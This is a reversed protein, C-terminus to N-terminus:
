LEQIFFKKNLKRSKKANKGKKANQRKHRLKSISCAFFAYPTYRFNEFFYFIAFVCNESIGFFLFEVLNGPFETFNQFKNEM